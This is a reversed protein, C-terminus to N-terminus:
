ANLIKGQRFPRESKVLFNQSSTVSGDEYFLGVWTGVKNFDIDLIYLGNGVETLEQLGSWVMDPNMFKAEVLKGEKFVASRYVIRNRGPPYREAM